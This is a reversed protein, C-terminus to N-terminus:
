LQNIHKKNLNIRETGVILQDYVSLACTGLQKKKELRKHNASENHQKFAHGPHTTNVCPKTSFAGRSPGSSYPYLECIKCMWGRKSQSYYLWKYDEGTTSSYCRKDGKESFTVAEAQEDDESSSAEEIDSLISWYYEDDVTEETEKSETSSNKNADENHQEGEAATPVTESSTEQNSSTRHFFSFFYAFVTNRLLYIEM